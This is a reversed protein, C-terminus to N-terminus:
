TQSMPLSQADGPKQNWQPAARQQQRIAASLDLRPMTQTKSLKTGGQEFDAEVSRSENMQERIGSPEDEPRQTRYIQIGKAELSQM